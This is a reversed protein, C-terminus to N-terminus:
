RLLHYVGRAVILSLLHSCARIMVFGVIRRVSSCHNKWYPFMDKTAFYIWWGVKDIIDNMPRLRAVQPLWWFWTNACNDVQAMWWIVYGSMLRMMPHALHIHSYIRIFGELCQVLSNTLADVNSILYKPVHILDVISLSSLGLQVNRFISRLKPDLPTSGLKFTKFRWHYASNTTSFWGHFFFFLFDFLSM